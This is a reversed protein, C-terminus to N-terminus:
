QEHTLAMLNEIFERKWPDETHTSGRNCMYLTQMDRIMKTMREEAFFEWGIRDQEEAIIKMSRPLEELDQFRRNNIKKPYVILWTQLDPHTYTSEM